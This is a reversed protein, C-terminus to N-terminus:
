IGWGNAVLIYLRLIVLESQLELMSIKRLPLIILEFRWQSQAPEVM